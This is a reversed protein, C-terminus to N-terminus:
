KKGFLDLFFFLLLFLALCILFCGCMKVRVGLVFDQGDIKNAAAFESTTPTKKQAERKSKRVGM